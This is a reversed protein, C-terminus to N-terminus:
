DVWGVASINVENGDVTYFIALPKVIIRWLGESLHQGSGAPDRQLQDEIAEGSGEIETWRDLHLFAIATFDGSASPAWIVAFM